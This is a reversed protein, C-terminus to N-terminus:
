QGRRRDSAESYRPQREDLQESLRDLRERLQALQPWLGYKIAEQVAFRIICFSIFLGFVAAVAIGGAVDGGSALLM